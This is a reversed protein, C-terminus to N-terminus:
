GLSDCIAHVARVWSMSRCIVNSRVTWIYWNSIFSEFLCCLLCTWILMVTLYVLYFYKLNSCRGYSVFQVRQEFICPHYFSCIALWMHLVSTGSYMISMGFSLSQWKLHMRSRVLSVMMGFPMTSIRRSVRRLETCVVKGTVLLSLRRPATREISMDISRQGQSDNLASNIHESTSTTWRMESKATEGSWRTKRTRGVWGSIKM